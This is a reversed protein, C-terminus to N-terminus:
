KIANGVISAGGSVAASAGGVAASVAGGVGSTQVIWTSIMPVTLMAIAGILATVIFIFVDGSTFTVYMIFIKPDQLVQNLTDLEIRLGYEMIYCSTTLVIYGIAAYLSVSIYRSLWHVYSDRFAPLISLAFSLPGLIVLISGFIIQLFFIFYICFQFIVMVVKEIFQSLMFKFKAVVYMQLGAIMDGIGDLSVGIKSFINSSENRNEDEAREVQLATLTLEQSVSDILAYRQRSMDSVEEMKDYFNGRATNTISDFPVNILSVFGGWFIIVLSLAFPRLLPMVEFRAEGLIMPYAKMAFYLLMFISALAQANSVFLSQDQLIQTWLGKMLELLQRDFLQNM